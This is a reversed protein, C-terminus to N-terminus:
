GLWNGDVHIGRSLSPRTVRSQSSPTTFEHALVALRLTNRSAPVTWIAVTEVFGPDGGRSGDVPGAIPKAVISVGGRFAQPYVQQTWLVTRMDLRDGRAARRGDFVSVTPLGGADAAVIVDRVGDGNYDGVALNVGGRHSNVLSVFSNVHAGARLGGRGRFVRVEPTGGPGRGAVVEAFGDGDLDGAAVRAGGRFTREFADFTAFAALTARSAAGYHTTTNAFVRVSGGGDAGIVIDGAGDRNVDGVTVFAGTAFGPAFASFSNIQAPAYGGAADPTGDYIRVDAPRGRGPVVVLDPLGDNNLDGTAIRTGGRFTSEYPMVGYKHEGTEADYVDIWPTTNQRSVAVIDVHNFREISTFEVKKHASTFTWNGEGVQDIGLKRGTTGTTDLNLYDGGGFLAVGSVPLKGDVFLTTTTSPLVTFVNVNDTGVLEFRELEGGVYDIGAFTRALGGILGLAADQPKPTFIDNRLSTPDLRYNFKATNQFTIAGSQTAADNLPKPVGGSRLADYGAGRDNVHVLDNGSGTDLTLLGQLPDLDGRDDGATSGVSVLDAGGQTDIRTTTGVLTSTVLFVDRGTASGRLLVGDNRGANTFSGDTVVYHIEGAALGTIRNNTVLVNDNGTSTSDDVILRNGTGAGGDVSVVGRILSVNGDASFTPATLSGTGATSSIVIRDNEVEGLIQAFSAEGTTQLHVLDAAGAGTVKLNSGTGTSLVDVRDIGANGVVFTNGGALTDTVDTKSGTRSTRLLITETSVYTIRAMGTRDVTTPTLSYQMAATGDGQDAVLLVDGTVLANSRDQSSLTTKATADHDGGAITLTGLIGDLSPLQSAADSAKLEDSSVTFTDSEGLGEVRTTSGARTSRVAVTDAFATNRVLIGDNAAPTGATQAFHGDTATYRITGGAVGTIAADTIVAATNATTAAADDVLLTNGGGAGADIEVTGLIGDVTGDGGPGATSSLRIADSAAGTLVRTFSGTGTTHVNVTDSEGALDVLLNATEGTSEVTVTNAADNGTLTTTTSDATSQVRATAAQSGMRVEITEATEYAITAAGSREVSTKTITYTTAASANGSDEFTIRDGTPVANSLDGVAFTTLPTPSHGDGAITLLGQIGDLSKGASGITFEDNGGGGEVRTTNGSGTGRIAFIDAKSASGLIRVGQNSGGSTFAGGSAAFTVVAPALGTVRGSEVVIGLDGWGGADDLVLRNSGGAGADISVGGYIRDLSGASKGGLTNGKNGLTFIDNDGGGALTTSSGSRTGFVLFQDDGEDGALELTALALSGVSGGKAAISTDIEFRDAGGRGSARVTEIGAITNTFAGVREVRDAWFRLTDGGDTGDVLLVETGAGGDLTNTGSEDRFTDDGEGGSLTDDGEGGDLEDKGKGGALVDRGSNGWAKGGGDGLLITDDGDGGTGEVRALVGRCDVSDNGNGADFLIRSVGSYEQTFGFARVRVTENGADGSVHEVVFKEAGDSTNGKARDGARTGLHLYLDGGSKSALVPTPNCDHEVTFSVLPPIKVIDKQGSIKTVLLNVEYWAYLRATVEGSLRFLCEPGEDILAAIENLRLRGDNNLDRLAMRVTAFVGGEVGGKAFGLDVSVGAAIGGNVVIQSTGDAKVFFGNFMDVVDNTVAFQRLGTTDFGFTFGARISLSGNLTTGIPGLIPFFQRYNFDLSLANMDFRFLDVDQGLLLKFADKWGGEQLMPVIFTFGSSRTMSGAASSAGADWSRPDVTVRDLGDVNINRLSANPASLDPLNFSGIDVVFNGSPPSFDMVFDYADLFPKIEAYNRGSAAIGFELFSVNRGLLQSLVPMPQRLFGESKHLLQRTPQLVNRIKTVIPVVFETALRGIDLQVNSFGVKPDGNPKASSYAWEAKFDALLRPVMASGGVSGVLKLNVGAAGTIVTQFLGAASFAPSALDAFSLRGDNGPDKVNIAFSANLGNLKNAITSADFQLFGLKATAGGNLKADVTVALEQAASTDLFFGERVDLGFGFSYTWATTLSVGANMDFGLAPLGLDFKVDSGTTVSQGLKLGFTVRDKGPLNYSPLDDEKWTIDDISVDSGADSSDLLLNAGAPGLADYLVQKLEDFGNVGALKLRLDDLLRERFGDIFNTQEALATGVVPFSKNFVTLKLGAQVASLATDLGDVLITPDRLLDLVGVNFLSALNPAQITVAPIAPDPLTIGDLKRLYNVLDPISATLPADGIKTTASPGYLPLSVGVGAAIQPTVLSSVTGAVIADDIAAFTLKNAGDGVLRFGFEAPAPTGAQGDKDLVASGGRVYVGVAGLSAQLNIADARLGVKGALLPQDTYLFTGPSSPDTLDIGLSVGLTYGTTATMKAAASVDFLKDVGALLKQVNEDGSAQALKAIDIILDRQETLTKALVFPIKLSQNAADWELRIYGLDGPKTGLVDNIAKEAQKVSGAPNAAIQEVKASYDAAYGLLDITSVGVLPIEKALFGFSEYRSLVQAASRMTGVIQSFKMDRFNKVAGFDTYAITTFDTATPTGYTGKGQLQLSKGTAFAQVKDGLGAEAIAWNLDAVLDAVSANGALSGPQGAAGQTLAVGASTGDSATLTFRIDDAIKGGGLDFQGSSTATGISQSGVGFTPLSVALSASKDLALNTLDSALGVGKFEAKVAGAVTPVTLRAFETADGLVAQKAQALTVRGHDSPSVGPNNLAITVDASGTIKGTVSDDTPTLTIDVFGFRGATIPVSAASVGVKATVTTDDLFAAGVTARGLSQEAFGLDTVFPDTKAAAIRFRTGPGTQRITIRSSGEEREAVLSASLGAGSLAANLDNVLAGPDTAYDTASKALGVRVPAAGDLSVLFTADGSLKEPTTGPVTSVGATTEVDLDVGFTLQIGANFAISVKATTALDTFPRLDLTFSVPTELANVGAKDADFDFAHALTVTYTLERSEKDYTVTPAKTLSGVVTTPLKALLGAATTFDAVSENDVTKTVKSVLAATFAAELDLLGGITQSSFPIPTALEPRDAIRGLLSGVDRITGLMEGASYLGFGGIDAFAANTTVVTGLDEFLKTSALTVTPLSGATTTFGGVSASLPLTAALTGSPTFALSADTGLASATFTVPSANQSEAKAALAVSGDMLEVDLFGLRGASALGLGTVDATVDLDTVVFSFADGSTVSFALQSTLGGTATVPQSAAFSLGVDGVGDLTDIALTKGSVANSSTLSFGVRITGADVSTAVTSVGGLKFQALADLYTKLEDVTPTPDGDFYGKVVVAVGTDLLGGVDVLDTITTTGLGPVVTKLDDGADLRDGFAKLNGLGALIATKQADSFPTATLLERRELREFRATSVQRRSSNRKRHHPRPSRTM